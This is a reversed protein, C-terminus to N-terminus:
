NTDNTFVHREGDIIVIRNFTIYGKHCGHKQANTSSQKYNKILM